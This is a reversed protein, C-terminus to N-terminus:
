KPQPSRTSRRVVLKFPVELHEAEAEEGNLARLLAEAALRGQEEPFQAVTTLGWFEGLTHGDIGVISLDAPVERGLDRAALLAGMAMEDSACVIATPAVMARVLMPRSAGMARWTPADAAGATVARVLAQGVLVGGGVLTALAFLLLGNREIDSINETQRLGLLDSGREVNVPHGVM